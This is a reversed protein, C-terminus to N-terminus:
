TSSARTTGSARSSATRPESSSEKPTVMGQSAGSDADSLPQFGQLFSAVLVPKTARVIVDGEKNSFDLPPDGPGLTYTGGSPEITVKTDPERVAIRLAHFVTEADKNAPATVFHERGWAHHPLLAEEIHDCHDRLNLPM